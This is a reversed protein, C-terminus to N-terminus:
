RDPEDIARDQRRLMRAITAAVADVDGATGDVRVGHEDAHLPELARLQSDLLSAPMFHDARARMRQELAEADVVLEIIFADPVTVRIADRYRRALASCAIVASDSDRLTEGVQRLWPKRDDDDLPIGAAMKAVNAAPHLDDADFFEVDLRAALAAGVTSKGSGSPGMVVVRM